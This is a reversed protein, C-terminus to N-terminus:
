PTPQGQERVVSRGNAPPLGPAIRGARLRSQGPVASVRRGDPLLVSVPGDVRPDYELRRPAGVARWRPVEGALGLDEIMQDRRAALKGSYLVVQAADFGSAILAAVVQEESLRGIWRGMWRADDWTMQEFAPTDEIPEYGVIRFPITMRGPGQVVRPLTFTWDFQNPSEGCRSLPGVARGLGGGLDTFYHRYRGGGPGAERSGPELRLRTNEFRSDFWGIWAGLLAVGRLERLEEHGLGGFEWPGLSRGETERYQINAPALVLHDLRAEVESRFNAPDDEPHERGADRFLRSKLELGTWEAGDRLVVRDIFVFPDHRKQLDITHVPILWLACIRTQVPKRLHFERLLRRDYRVRLGDVHDTPDVHYGMAWFVRAAFPESRTEALKVKVVRRGDTLDFGPCGGYSTKPAAYRWVRDGLSPGTTRGFGDYLNLAPVDAPREWFSSGVPDVRSSDGGPLAAVNAAPTEGRAVPNHNYDLFTLPPQGIELRSPAPPRHNNRLVTAVELLWRRNGARREPHAIAELALRELEQLGRRQRGSVEVPPESLLARLQALTAEDRNTLAELRKRAAEFDRRAASQRELCQQVWDALARWGEVSDVEFVRGEVDIVPREPWGARLAV